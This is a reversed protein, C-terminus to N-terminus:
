QDDEIRLLCIELKSRSVLARTNRPFSPDSVDDAEAIWILDARALAMGKFWQPYPAGSNRDNVIVRTGYVGAYYDLISQSGDTSADDLIILEFDQFSQGLISEM